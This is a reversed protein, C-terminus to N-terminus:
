KLRFVIIFHISLEGWYIIKGERYINLDEKLNLQERKM